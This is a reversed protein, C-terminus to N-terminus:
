PRIKKPSRPIPPPIMNIGKKTIITPKLMWLATPVDIKTTINVAM